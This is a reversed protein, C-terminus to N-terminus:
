SVSSTAVHLLEVSDSATHLLEVSASATHLLAVTATAIGPVAQPGSTATAAWSAAAQAWTATGTVAPPTNTATAAWAPAAQAFTATSPLTETATGAWTAAPQAFTATSPLKESAAGDWSAAAQAWTADSTFGQQAPTSASASWIAAAQEFSATSPLSESAAGDWAAAAQAFAATSPFKEAASAAWTAAAQAFTATSPLKESASGAWSAAAQTWTATGTIDGGAAAPRVVITYANWQESTTLTFAGPDDSAAALNRTAFGVKAASSATQNSTQNDTYSTPWATIPFAAASDDTITTVIFLNDDSGWSAAVSDANPSISNGTAIASIEPATTGHWGTIRAAIHNSRESSHTVSVSTEGGSAILYGISARATTSVAEDKLKVWPAPWTMTSAGSDAGIVAVILDGAAVNAPLTVVSTTTNLTQSSTQVGSVIPFAM